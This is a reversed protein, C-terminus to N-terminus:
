REREHPGIALHCAKRGLIVAQVAAQRARDVGPDLECKIQPLSDAIPQAAIRHWISAEEGGVGVGPQTPAASRIPEFEAVGGAVRAAPRQLLMSLPEVLLKVPEKQAAVLIAGEIGRVDRRSEYWHAPSSIRRRRRRPRRKRPLRLGSRACGPTTRRRRKSTDKQSVTFVAACAVVRGRTRDQRNRAPSGGSKKRGGAGRRGIRAGFWTARAAVQQRPDVRPRVAVRPAQWRPVRRADRM